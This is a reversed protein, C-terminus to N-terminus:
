MHRIGNKQEPIVQSKVEKQNKKLDAKPKTVLEHIEEESFGIQRLLDMGWGTKSLVEATHTVLEDKREATMSERKFLQADGYMQMVQELQNDSLNIRAGYKNKAYFLMTGRGAGIKEGNADYLMRNKELRDRKGNQDFAVWIGNALEMEAMQRGDFTDFMEPSNEVLLVEADQRPKCLVFKVHSPVPDDAYKRLFEIIEKAEDKRIREAEKAMEIAHLDNFLDDIRDTGSRLDNEFKNTPEGTRDFWGDQSMNFDYPNYDAYFDMIQRGIEDIESPPLLQTIDAIRGEKALQAVRDRLAKRKAEAFEGQPTNLLKVVWAFRTENAPEDPRELIDALKRYDSTIEDLEKRSLAPNYGQLGWYISRIEIALEIYEQKRVNADERDM